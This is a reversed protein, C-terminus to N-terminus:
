YGLWDLVDTANYTDEEGLEAFFQAMSLEDDSGHKSLEKIAREKSIIVGEASKYYDTYVKWKTKGKTHRGM